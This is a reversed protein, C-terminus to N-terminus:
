FFFPLINKSLNVSQSFFFCGLRQVCDKCSSLFSGNRTVARQLETVEPPIDPPLGWIRIANAIISIMHIEIPLILPVRM